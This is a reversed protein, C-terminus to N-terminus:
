SLPLLDMSGNNKIHIWNTGSRDFLSWTFKSQESAYDVLWDINEQRVNSQLTRFSKWVEYQARQTAKDVTDAVAMRAKFAMADLDLEYMPPLPEAAYSVVVFRSIEGVKMLLTASYTLPPLELGFQRLIEIARTDTIPRLTTRKTM